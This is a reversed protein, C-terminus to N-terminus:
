RRSIMIVRMAGTLRSIIRECMASRTSPNGFDYQVCSSDPAASGRDQGVLDTSSSAKVLRSAARLRLRLPDEICEPQHRVLACRSGGDTVETPSAHDGFAPEPQKRGLARPRLDPHAIGVEGVGREFARRNAGIDPSPSCATALCAPPSGAAIRITSTLASPTTFNELAVAYRPGLEAGCRGQAPTPAQARRSHGIPGRDDLGSM